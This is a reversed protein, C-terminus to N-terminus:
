GKQLLLDVAWCGKAHAGLTRCHELLVADGCGAEELADALIPLDQFSREAYIAQAFKVVMGGNWALWSPDALMTRYPNGALDRLLNAQGKRDEDVPQICRFSELADQRSGRSVAAAAQVAQLIKDASVGAVPKIESWRGCAVDALQRYSLVGDAYSEAAEVAPRALPCSLLHWFRRCCACAFLRLKRDSLRGSVFRLMAAPDGSELWEAETM